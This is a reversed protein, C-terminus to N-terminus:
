RSLTLPLSKYGNVLNSRLRQPEGSLEIQPYAALLEEFFVRGELRALHAGLCFHESQGFSLHKNPTRRVDFRQPDAFVSEDRNAATYVMVIKEGAKIQQGGLDTNGTATRRFYHLPNAWRLVEEVASPILSPDARVTDLQDPHTVLAHTGSSLMTQTTDQGATVLQVFLMAYAAPDMSSLLLTTLDDPPNDLEARAAAFSYAYMGMETSAEGASGEAEAYDPDQGHTIREALSHIRDWDARPLGMMAGIVQSPLRASVERVLDVDGDLGVFMDRCIIRIDHDLASMAKPTFRQTIPKRVDRHRPPDMALLMGRMQEVQSQALDEIMVGSTESSFLRPERTVAEVGAHSLVAWYPEVLSSDIWHLPAVARAQAFWEHPPGGAYVEPDALDLDAM